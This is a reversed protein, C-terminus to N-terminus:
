RRVRALAAALRQTAGLGIVAAGAALPVCVFALYDGQSAQHIALATLGVALQIFWWGLLGWGGAFMAASKPHLM